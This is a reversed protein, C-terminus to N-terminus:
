PHLYPKLPYASYLFSESEKACQLLLFSAQGLLHLTFLQHKGRHGIEGGPNEIMDAPMAAHRHSLDDADSANIM